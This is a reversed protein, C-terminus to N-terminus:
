AIRRTAHRLRRALGSSPTSSGAVVFGGKLQWYRPVLL